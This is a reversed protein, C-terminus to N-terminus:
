RGRSKVTVPRRYRAAGFLAVALALFGASAPCAACHPVAGGCVAGYTAVLWRIHLWAIEASLGAAYLAVLGSVTLFTRVGARAM